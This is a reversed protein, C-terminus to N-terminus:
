LCWLGYPRVAVSNNHRRIRYSLATDGHGYYTSNAKVPQSMKNMGDSGRKDYRRDDQYNRHDRLHHAWYHLKGHDQSHLGHRIDSDDAHAVQPLCAMGLYLLTILPLKNLTSYLKM